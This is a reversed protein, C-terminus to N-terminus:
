NLNVTVDRRKGQYIYLVLVDTKKTSENDLVEVTQVIINDVNDNITRIVEDRIGNRRTAGMPMFLYQAINNGILPRDVREGITTKLAAKIEVAKVDEDEILSVAKNSGLTLPYPLGKLSM